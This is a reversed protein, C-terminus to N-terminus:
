VLKALHTELLPCEVSEFGISKSLPVPLGVPRVHDVELQLAVDAHFEELCVLLAPDARLSAEEVPPSHM